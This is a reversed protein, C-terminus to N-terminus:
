SRFGRLVDSADGGKATNDNEANYIMRDVKEEILVKQAEVTVAELVETSSSLLVTGLDVDWNKDTIEVERKITEFGIFSIAVVYKGNNIGKIVFKGKADAITGDVPKNTTPNNLAVTAFEVVNSNEAEKITGSIKGIGTQGMTALATSIFILTIYIRKM